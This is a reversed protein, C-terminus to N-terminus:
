STAKRACCKKHKKGSGCLCRSNPQVKPASNVIQSVPHFPTWVQRWFTRSRKDIENDGVEFKLYEEECDESESDLILEVGPHVSGDFYRATLVVFGQCSPHSEVEIGFNNINEVPPRLRSWAHALKEVFELPMYMSECNKPTIPNEAIIAELNLRDLTDKSPLSGKSNVNFM